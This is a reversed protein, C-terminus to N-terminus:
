KVPKPRYSRDKLQQHLKSRIQAHKEKLKETQLGDVGAGGKNRIVARIASDLNEEKWVKDILSYWKGGKIGKNLTALMQETWVSGEVWDWSPGSNAGGQTAGAPVSSPQNPENISM